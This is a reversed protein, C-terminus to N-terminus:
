RAPRPSKRTSKQAAAVAKTLVTRWAEENNPTVLVHRVRSDAAGPRLYRAAATLYRVTRTRLGLDITGARRYLAASEETFPRSTHPVVVRAVWAADFYTRVMLPLNQWEPLERNLTCFSLFGRDAPLYCLVFGLGNPFLERSLEAQRQGSKPASRNRAPEVQLRIFEARDGHGQEELYDALVLRALDDNPNDFVNRVLAEFDATAVPPQAPDGPRAAPNEVLHLLLAVAHKCPQTTTFCTCGSEFADGAPTAWVEYGDTMGRCRAWFGRGDATLHVVDFPKKKLLENAAPSRGASEALRAIEAFDFRTDGM